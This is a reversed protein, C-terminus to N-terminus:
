YGSQPYWSRSKQNWPQDRGSLIENARRFNENALDMRNLASYCLGRKYYAFANEPELRIVEGYDEIAKGYDNTEKYANARKYFGAADVPSTQLAASNEEPTGRTQEAEQEFAERNLMPTTRMKIPSAAQAPEGSPASVRSVAPGVSGSARQNPEVFYHWDLAQAMRPSLYRTYGYYIVGNKSYYAMTPNKYHQRAYVPNSALLTSYNLNSKRVDTYGYYIIRGKSYYAMTPHDHSGTHTQSDAIVPRVPALLLVAALCFLPFNKM